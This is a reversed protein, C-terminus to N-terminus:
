AGAKVIPGYYVVPFGTGTCFVWVDAGPTFHLYLPRNTVMGTVPDSGVFPPQLSWGGCNWWENEPVDIRIVGGPEPTPVPTASATQATLLGTALVAGTLAATRLATKM